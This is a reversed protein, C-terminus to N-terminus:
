QEVHRNSEAQAREHIEEPTGLVTLQSLDDLTIVSCIESRRCNRRDALLIKSIRDTNVVGFRSPPAYISDADFDLYEVKILTM